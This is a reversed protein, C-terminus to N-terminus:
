VIVGGGLNGTFHIKATHPTAADIPAHFLRQSGTRKTVPGPEKERM